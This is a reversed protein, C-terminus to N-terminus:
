EDLAHLLDLLARRLSRDDREAEWCRGAEALRVAVVDTIAKTGM